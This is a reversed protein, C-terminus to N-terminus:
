TNLTTALRSMLAHWGQWSQSSSRSCFQYGKRILHCSQSTTAAIGRPDRCSTVGVMVRARRSYGIVGSALSFTRKPSLAILPKLMNGRM